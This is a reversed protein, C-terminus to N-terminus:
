SNAPLFSQSSSKVISEGQAQFAQSSVVFVEILLGFSARQLGFRGPRTLEMM